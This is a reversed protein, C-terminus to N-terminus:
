AVRKSKLIERNWKGLTHSAVVFGGEPGGVPILYNYATDAQSRADYALAVLPLFHFPDLPSRFTLFTFM